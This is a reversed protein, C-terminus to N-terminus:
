LVLLWIYVLFVRPLVKNTVISCVLPLFPCLCSSPAKYLGDHKDFVVYSQSLSYDQLLNGPFTKSYVGFSMGM